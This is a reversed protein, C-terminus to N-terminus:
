AGRELKGMADAAMKKRNGVALNQLFHGLSPSYQSGLTRM